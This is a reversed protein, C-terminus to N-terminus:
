KTIYCFTSFLSLRHISEPHVLHLPLFSRISCGCLYVHWSSAPKIPCLMGVPFYKVSYTPNSFVSVSSIHKKAEPSALSQSWNRWPLKCYPWIVRLVWALIEAKQRSSDSCRRKTALGWFLFVPSCSEMVQKQGNVVLCWLFQSYKSLIKRCVHQTYVNQEQLVFPSTDQMTGFQGSHQM